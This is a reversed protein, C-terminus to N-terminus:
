GITVVNEQFLCMLTSFPFLRSHSCLYQKCTEPANAVDLGRERSSLGDYGM